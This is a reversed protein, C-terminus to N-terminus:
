AGRTFKTGHEDYATVTAKESRPVMGWKGRISLCGEHKDTKGRSVKQLVPNIYVQDPSEAPEEIEDTEDDGDAEIKDKARQSLAKGSVIFLALPEGVQAAAIAVGFKEQAMLAKMETILRKIHPTGIDKIPIENAMERLAPNKEAPIITYM